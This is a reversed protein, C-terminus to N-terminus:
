FCKGNMSPIADGEKATLLVPSPSGPVKLSSLNSTEVISLDLM